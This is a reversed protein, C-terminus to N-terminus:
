AKWAELGQAENGALCFYLVLVMALGLLLVAMILLEQGLLSPDLSEDCLDIRVRATFNIIVPAVFISHRLHDCLALGCRRWFIGVGEGRDKRLRVTVTRRAQRRGRTKYVSRCASGRLQSRRMEVVVTRNRRRGVQGRVRDRARTSLGVVFLLGVVVEVVEIRTDMTSSCLSNLRRGRV